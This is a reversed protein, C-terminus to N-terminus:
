VVSLSNLIQIDNFVQPDMTISWREYPCLPKEGGQEVAVHSTDTSSGIGEYLVQHDSTKYRRQLTCPNIEFISVRFVFV